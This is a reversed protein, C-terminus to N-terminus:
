RDVRGKMIRRCGACYEDELIKTEGRAEMKIELDNDDSANHIIATIRRSTCGACYEELIKTEGRAEMM